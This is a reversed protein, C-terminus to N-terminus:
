IAIVTPNVVRAGSVEVRPPPQPPPAPPPASAVLGTSGWVIAALLLLPLVIIGIRAALPLRQFRELGSEEEVVPLSTYDVPQAPLYTNLAPAEREAEGRKWPLKPM